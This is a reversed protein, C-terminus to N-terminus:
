KPFHSCRSERRAECGPQRGEHLFRQALRLRKPFITGLFCGGCPHGQEPFENTRALSPEVGLEVRMCGRLFGAAAFFGDAARDAGAIGSRRALGRPRWRIRRASRCVTAGGSLRDYSGVASAWLM